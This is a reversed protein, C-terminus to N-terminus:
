YVSTGEKSVLEKFSSVLETTVPGPQGANIVRGDVWVIPLIEIRTATCFCEDCTYIDHMTLIEERVEIGQIQAIKLISQRTIGNLLGSALSPTILCSDKVIFINDATM